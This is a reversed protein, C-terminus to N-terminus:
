PQEGPMPVFLQPTDRLDHQTLSSFEEVLSPVDCIEVWFGKEHCAHLLRVEQLPSVVQLWIDGELGFLYM